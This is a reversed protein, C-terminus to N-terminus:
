QQFYMPGNSTPLLIGYLLGGNNATFIDMLLPMEALTALDSSQGSCRLRVCIGRRICPVVLTVSGQYGPFIVARLGELVDRLLTGAVFDRRVGRIDVNATPPLPTLLIPSLRMLDTAVPRILQPPLTGALCHQINALDLSKARAAADAPFAGEARAHVEVASRPDCAIYFSILTSVPIISLMGGHINHSISSPDQPYVHAPLVAAPSPVYSFGLSPHVLPHVPVRGISNSFFFAEPYQYLRNASPPIPVGRVVSVPVASSRVTSAALHTSPSSFQPSTGPLGRGSAVPVVSAHAEDTLAAIRIDSKISRVARAAIAGLQQRQETGLRSDLAGDGTRLAVSGNGTRLANAYEAVMGPISPNGGEGMYSGAFLDPAAAAEGASGIAMPSGSFGADSAARMFLVRYHHQISQPSRGRQQFLSAARNFVFIWPPFRASAARTWQLGQSALFGRYDAVGELIALDEEPVFPLAAYNAVAGEDLDGAQLALVGALFGAGAFLPVPRHAPAARARGDARAHSKPRSLITRAVDFAWERDRPPGVGVPQPSRAAAALALENMMDTGLFRPRIGPAENRTTEPPAVPALVPLVPLTPLELPLVVPEALAPATAPLSSFLGRGSSSRKESAGAGAAATSDATDADGENEGEQEGDADDGAGAAAAERGPHSRPPRPPPTQFELVSEDDVQPGRNGSDV